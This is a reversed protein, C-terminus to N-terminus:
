LSMLSYDHIGCPDAIHTFKLRAHNLSVLISIFIPYLTPWLSWQKCPNFHDTIRDITLIRRVYSCKIPLLKKSL